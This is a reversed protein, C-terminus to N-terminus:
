NVGNIYTAQRVSDSVLWNKYSKILTIINAENRWANRVLNLNPRILRVVRRGDFCFYNTKRIFSGVAKLASLFSNLSFKLCKVLFKKAKDKIECMAVIAVFPLNQASFLQKKLIAKFLAM